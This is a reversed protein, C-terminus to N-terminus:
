YERACAGRRGRESARGFPAAGDNSWGWIRTPVYSRPSGPGIAKRGPCKQVNALGSPASPASSNVRFSNRRQSHKVGDGAAQKQGTPSVGPGRSFRATRALLGSSEGEVYQLFRDVSTLTAPHSIWVPRM